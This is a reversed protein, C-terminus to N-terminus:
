LVRLEAVATGQQEKHLYNSPDNRTNIVLMGLVAKVCSALKAHYTQILLTSILASSM